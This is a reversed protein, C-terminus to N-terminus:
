KENKIFEFRVKVDVVEAINQFLIKPISIGFDELRVPFAAEMNLRDGLNTLEGDIIVPQTVGHITLNGKAKVQQRGYQKPDMELMEGEFTANPYQDSEMFRENFHRQMLSKKFRFEKIPILIALKNSEAKYIGTGNRNVASIDELPASSFFSVESSESHFTQGKSVLCLFLAAIFLFSRMAM